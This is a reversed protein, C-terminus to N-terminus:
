EKKRTGKLTLNPKQKNNKLYKIKLFTQLLVCKRRLLAKYGLSKPSNNKTKTKKEKKKKKDGHIKKIEKNM